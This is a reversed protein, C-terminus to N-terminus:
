NLYNTLKITKYSGSNYAVWAGFGNQEVYIQHAADINKKCDVLDSLPFRKFHVTNIMTRGVDITKNTNINTRDCQGTGNEARFVKVALDGDKGFQEYIYEDWKDKYRPPLEQAKAQPIFSTQQPPTRKEIMIPSQVPSQFKLLHTAFFQNIAYLIWFGLLLIISALIVATRFKHERIKLNLM